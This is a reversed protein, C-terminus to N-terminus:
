HTSNKENETQAFIELKEVHLIVGSFLLISALVLIFAPKKM